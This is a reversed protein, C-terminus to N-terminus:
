PVVVSSLFGHIRVPEMEGDKWLWSVDGQGFSTMAVYFKGGSLRACSPSMIRCFTTDGMAHVGNHVISSIRGGKGINVAAFDGGELSLNYPSGGADASYEHRDSTWIHPAWSSGILLRSEGRIFINEGDAALHCNRLVAPAGTKLITVAGDMSLMPGDDKLDSLALCKRGGFRRFDLIRYEGPPPLVPAPSGDVCEYWTKGTVSDYYFTFCIRGDDEYLAGGPWSPDGLEGVPVGLSNSYVEKGNVRYVIGGSPQVAGLTFLTDSRLLFGKIIERDPFRFQELGDRCVVTEDGVFSETWIHGRCLLHMDADPSVLGTLSSVERMVKGDQFEQIRFGVGEYASDKKWDYTEPYEVGTLYISNSGGGDDGSGSGGKGLEDSGEFLSCSALVAAACFITFYARM